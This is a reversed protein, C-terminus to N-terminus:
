NHLEVGMSRLEAFLEGRAGQSPLRFSHERMSDRRLYATAERLADEETEDEDAEDDHSAAAIPRVGAYARSPTGTREWTPAFVPQGTVPHVPRTDPGISDPALVLPSFRGNCLELREAQSLQSEFSPSHLLTM